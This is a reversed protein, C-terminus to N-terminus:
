CKVFERAENILRYPETMEEITLGFGHIDAISCVRKLPDSDLVFLLNKIIEKARSLEEM